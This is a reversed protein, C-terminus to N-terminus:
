KDIILNIFFYSPKIDRHAIKMEHLYDIGNLLQITWSTIDYIPILKNLARKLAIEDAM